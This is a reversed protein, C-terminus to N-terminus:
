VRLLANGYRGMKARNYFAKGASAGSSIDSIYRQQNKKGYLIRTAQSGAKIRKEARMASRESKLTAKEKKFDDWAKNTTESEIRNAKKMLSNARKDSSADQRAQKKTKGSLLSDKYVKNRRNIAQSELAATQKDGKQIKANRRRVADAKKRSYESKRVGWKMGKVGYHALYDEYTEPIQDVEM